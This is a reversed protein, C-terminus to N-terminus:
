SAAELRIAVADRIQPYVVPHQAQFPAPAGARWRWAGPTGPIDAPELWQRVWLRHDVSVRKFDQRTIYGRLELLAALELAAEKWRTLSTPSPVGAAVDPVYAPLAHRKEPNCYHWTFNSKWHYANRASRPTLVTLGLAAPLLPKEQSIPVLVARFDPGTSQWAGREVAQSLVQLNLKLKAQIGIQTGDTHVLLIDWDRTEPYATWGADAKALESLFHECLAAETTYEPARRTM